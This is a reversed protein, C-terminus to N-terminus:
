IYFAVRQELVSPQSIFLGPVETCFTRACRMIDPSRAPEHVLWPGEHLVAAHATLDPGVSSSRYTSCIEALTSATVLAPGHV